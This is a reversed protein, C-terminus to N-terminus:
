EEVTVVANTGVYGLYHSTPRVLVVSGVDDAVVIDDLWGNADTTGTGVDASTDVSYVKMEASPVAFSHGLYDIMIVQHRPGKSAM